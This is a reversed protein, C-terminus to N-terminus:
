KSEWVPANCSEPQRIKIRGAACEIRWNLEHFGNKVKLGMKEAVEIEAKMGHSPEGNTFVWVEQCDKLLEIGLEMGLLREHEINDDLFATFYIHPAVPLTGFLCAMRCYEKANKINNELDGRLPSCIYVRKM